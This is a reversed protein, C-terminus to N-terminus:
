GCPHFQAGSHRTKDGYAARRSEESSRVERDRNCVRRQRDRTSRIVNYFYAIAYRLGYWKGYNRVLDTNIAKTWAYPSQDKGLGGDAFKTSSGAYVLKAKRTKCFNVVAFTGAVNMKWVLVPEDFSKETRAYEGLHYVLDPKDSVLSEIQTTWGEIYTVGEIRHDRLGTFYNDLVLVRKTPDKVLAEVLHSGVFGAGGTVLIASANPRECM